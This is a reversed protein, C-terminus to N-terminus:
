RELEFKIPLSFQVEVNKDDQQGPIWNPMNNIIRLVEKDFYISEPVSRLIKPERIKGDRGVIFTVLVTGQIKNTSEWLPYKLNKQIYKIMQDMGGKFEPMTEVMEYPEKDPYPYHIVEGVIIGEPIAPPPISPPTINEIKLGNDVKDNANTNNDSNGSITDNQLITTDVNTSIPQAITSNNCGALIMTGVTLLYFALNKNPNQKAIAQITVLFDTNSFDLQSRYIRGCVNETRNLFLYELIEQKEKNTFDIVNKTCKDCFRANIGIKMTEWNESCPTKINFPTEM